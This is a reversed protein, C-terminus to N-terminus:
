PSLWLITADDHLSSRPHTKGDPDNKEATRICDLIYTAGHTQLDDLLPEWSSYLDLTDLARTFGDSMLLIHDNPHLNLTGTLARDIVGADQAVADWGGPKNLLPTCRNYVNQMELRYEESTFGSGSRLLANTKALPNLRDLRDDSLVTAERDAGLVALTSDCVILYDLTSRDPALRCLILTCLPRFKQPSEVTYGTQAFFKQATNAIASKALTALSIEQTAAVSKKFNRELEGVHWCADLGHAPPELQTAGDMLWFINGAHGALDDNFHRSPKSRTEIKIM